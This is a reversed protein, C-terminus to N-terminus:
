LWVATAAGHRGKGTGEGNEVENLDVRAVERLKGYRGDWAVVFVFGVESDTLALYEVGDVTPGPQIANAWGGSTATEYIDLLGGQYDDRPESSENSDDPVTEAGDIFGNTNLAYVAVYGKRGEKLSRTSAYLYKPPSGTSTGTLSTRVEDAWFDSVPLGQPIIRVGQRHLLQVKSDEEGNNHRNNSNSHSKGTSTTSKVVEFVDVVSSHEQLCYVVRGNPHPHVHRPGDHSRPSIKKGSLTLHPTRTTTSSDSSQSVSYVWICNRGIDAIYLISGDPSLDASHAGHRLGGFDMTSGNDRQSSPDIFTLLQTPPIKSSNATTNDGNTASSLSSSTSPSTFAGTEPDLAYVEGTAGGASYAHTKSACVYGSRSNTPVTNLLTIETPTKVTYSALTPPDTWATAYLTQTQTQSSPSSSTSTTSPPNLHLWSHSGIAPHQKLIKLTGTTTTTTPSSPSPPTFRLTFLSPTNFTGVILDYHTTM